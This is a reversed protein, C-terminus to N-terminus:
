VSDNIFNLTDIPNYIVDGTFRGASYFPFSGDEIDRGPLFLRVKIMLLFLLIERNSKPNIDVKWLSFLLSVLM